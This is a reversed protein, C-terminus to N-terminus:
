NKRTETFDERWLYPLVAVAAYVVVAIMYTFQIWFPTM